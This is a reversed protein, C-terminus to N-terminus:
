LLISYRDYAVDSKESYHVVPCSCFLPYDDKDQIVKPSEDSWHFGKTFIFRKYVFCNKSFISSGGEPLELRKEVIKVAGDEGNSKKKKSPSAETGTKEESRPQKGRMAGDCRTHTGWCFFCDNAVWQNTLKLLYIVKSLLDCM